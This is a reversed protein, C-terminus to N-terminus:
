MRIKGVVQTWMHFTAYTDRWGELPLPPWATVVVGVAPGRAPLRSRDRDEPLFFDVEGAHAGGRPVGRAGKRGDARERPVGGGGARVRGRGGGGRRRAHIGAGRRRHRPDPRPDRAPAARGRARAAGAPSRRGSRAGRGAALAPAEAGPARLRDRGARASRGGVAAHVLALAAGRPGRPGRGPDAPADAPDRRGGGGQQGPMCPG